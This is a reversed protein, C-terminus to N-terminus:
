EFSVQNLTNKLTQASEQLHKTEDENLHLPIQFEVGSSGIIAPMSMVVDKVGHLEHWYNSATMISKEDRIIAECIRTVSPAIGFYTARKKEIIEYASNRVEDEIQKRMAEPNNFGRLRFFDDIHIGSINALSWAALESDGHEGIIRAHVHRPDVDLTHGLIYKLRASDLVTGSGLVREKPLGSLKMVVQTLIDVPNSVVVIIGNFDQAMISSVVDKLISVNTQLLDLRTEGPKQNAGAAIVVISADALDKYSGAYINMPSYYPVGHAIDLAEGEARANNVDILVMESFLSSQMLSFACTSGVFGCGVVAVKRSYITNNM